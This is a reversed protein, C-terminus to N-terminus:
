NHFWPSSSCIQCSGVSFLLYKSISSIEGKPVLLTFKPSAELPLHTHTLASSASPLIQDEQDRPCQSCTRTGDRESRTRTFPEQTANVKKFTHSYELLLFWKSKHKGSSGLSHHARQWCHQHSINVAALCRQTYPLYKSMSKSQM